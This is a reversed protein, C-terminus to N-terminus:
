AIIELESELSIPLLSDESCEQILSSSSKHEGYIIEYKYDFLNEPLLSYTARKEQYYRYFYGIKSSTGFIPLNLKKIYNLPFHDPSDYIRGVIMARYISLCVMKLRTPFRNFTLKLIDKYM